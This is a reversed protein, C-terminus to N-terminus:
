NTAIDEHSGTQNSPEVDADTAEVVPEITKPSREVSTSVEEEEEDESVEGGVLVAARKDWTQIRTPTSM